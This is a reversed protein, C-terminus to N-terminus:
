GVASNFLCLAKVQAWTIGTQWLVDIISSYVAAHPRSGSRLMAEFTDLAACRSACHREIFRDGVASPLCINAPTPRLAGEPSCFSVALCAQLIATYPGSDIWWHERIATPGSM